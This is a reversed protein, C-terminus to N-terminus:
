KSSRRAPGCVCVQALKSNAAIVRGWLQSGDDPGWLQKDDALGQGLNFIAKRLAHLNVESYRPMELAPLGDIGGRWLEQLSCRNM